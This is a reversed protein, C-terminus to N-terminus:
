VGFHDGFVEYDRAYFEEIRRVQARTLVTRNLKPGDAHVKDITLERQLQASLDSVLRPLDAIPYLTSFYEADQGLFHVLPETHHAIWASHERYEELRDIFNALFPEPDVGAANASEKLPLGGLRGVRHVYASLLRDVPDRLVAIRETDVRDRPASHDFALTPYIDHIHHRRGNAVFKRFEYGNEVCFFLRKLSSPANLYPTTASGLM